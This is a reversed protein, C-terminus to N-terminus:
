CRRAAAFNYKKELLLRCVLDRRSQLESTHEESRLSPSGFRLSKTSLLRISKGSCARFQLFPNSKPALSSLETLLRTFFRGSALGTAPFFFAKRRAIGFLLRGSAMLNTSANRARKSM